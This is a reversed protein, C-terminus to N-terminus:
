QQHLRNPDRFEYSVPNSVIGDWRLVSLEKIGFNGSVPQQVVLKNETWEVTEFKDEGVYVTGGQWVMGFKVGEIILIQGQVGWNPSYNYIKPLYERYVKELHYQNYFLGVSFLFVFFLTQKTLTNIKKYPFILSVTIIWFLLALIGTWEPISPTLYKIETIIFEIPLYSISYLALGTITFILGRVLPRIVALVLPSQRYHWGLEILTQGIIFALVAGLAPFIAQFLVLSVLFVIALYALYITQKM